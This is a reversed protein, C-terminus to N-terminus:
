ELIGLSRARRVAEGRRTVCLKRHISKLHTKATNPSIFLAAAIEETSSMRAAERLVESERDTLPVPVASTQEGTPAQARTAPPGAGTRGLVRAPLWGHAMALRPDRRLLRRVWPGAEAVTRRLRETRALELAEGLLRGAEALCGAEAAAAGQLLRAEVRDANTAHAPPETLLKLARTREGAALLARARAVVYRPRDDGISGLVHLAAEPDGRALHASSQAVALEDAEWRATAPVVDPTSCAAGRLVALAREGDGRATALRAGIVAAQVNAVPEHFADAAANALDLGARAADLDDHETAVGALVLHDLGTVRDPPLACGRALALSDCAHARADHLRGRLLDVLALSGLADCRPEETGPRSCAELAATLTAEARDLRGGGLETAGLNALTLALFEPHRERLPRPIQRLLRDVDAAAQEAAEADAAPRAVLVGVLARGLLLCPDAVGTLCADVRRLAVTAGRHDGEAVRCAAAVLAPAAGPLDTPMTAFARTLTSTELGTFLKGLALDDTLLASAFPWDAAATAQAIADGLRGARALWRAARARLLPARGPFRRSLHAQLVEAFLPHMRYYESGEERDVFANDRALRGLTWAADRRGTLEDALDPHIRDSVCTRLLLDQTAPPQADLVETLLYDAITTRDAAFQRVFAEPDPSRGMALACLRLGAAWGRTRETLLDVAAPSVHLGHRRLIRETEPATFRLDADRIETIDGALRYRHLPLPPETRATLVLRLGGAAHALVFHLDEPVGDAVADFDDIVLVAPDRRAALAAALRVLVSSDPGEERAPAGVEVPIRVGNRHLAELLYAWFAGPGDREEATLWATGRPAAGSTIWHAVLATKGAGAAGGVLTLPGAIGATLRAPLVPREVFVKPTAPIVFRDTLMPAPAREPPPVSGYSDLALLNRM